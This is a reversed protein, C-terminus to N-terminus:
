FFFCSDCIIFFFFKKLEFEIILNYKLGRMYIYVINFQHLRYIVPVQPVPFCPDSNINAYLEHIKGTLIIM